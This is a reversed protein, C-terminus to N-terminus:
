REVVVGFGARREGHALPAVRTERKSVFPVEAGALAAVEFVEDLAHLGAPRGARRCARCRCRRARSRCAARRRHREPRALRRAGHPRRRGRLARQLRRRHLRLREVLQASKGAFGRVDDVRRRIRLCLPSLSGTTAGGSIPPQCASTSRTSGARRGAQVFSRLRSGRWRAAPPGPRARRACADLASCSARRPAPLRSARRWGCLAARKPKRLRAACLREDLAYRRQRALAREPASPAPITARAPSASCADAAQHALAPQRVRRQARCEALERPRAAQRHPARQRSM